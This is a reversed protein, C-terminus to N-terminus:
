RMVEKEVLSWVTDSAAKHAARYANWDTDVSEGETLGVEKAIFARYEGRRHAEDFRNM